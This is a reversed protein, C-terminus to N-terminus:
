SIALTRNSLRMKMFGKIDILETFSCLSVYMAFGLPIALLLAFGALFKSFIGYINYAFYGCPLIFLLVLILTKTFRIKFNTYKKLSILNMIATCISSLFSALAVSYIGMYLPLIFVGGVMLLTGSMFNIFARFEYGMSNLASQTLASICMPLMVFSGARLLKGSIIDDFLFQTIQPGLALYFFLFIGSILLSFNIGNNLNKNLTTFQSKVKNESMEPILVIALSSIIANPALIMPNAMGAIRGFSATAEAVTFGASILRVPLMIAIFTSVLNGFLRIATIPLSPLLVQKIQTPKELRGGKCFFMILLLVAVLADSVMFALAIGYAGSIGSIIGSVFFISFLIRFVEEVTETISFSTFQKRGWFWGRVINYVTTSIIAPLMIIIMPAANKDALLKPLIPRALTLVVFVAISISMGVLLASSFLSNEERKDLARSEATKRSLVLPVGSASFCAFMYFMSICIQYLGVVEAGLARSLYIKFLFSLGRTFVSFVTVTAVAKFVKKNKTM